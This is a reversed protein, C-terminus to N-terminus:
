RKQEKSIINQVREGICRLTLCDGEANYRTGDRIKFFGEQNLKMIWMDCYKKQEEYKGNHPFSEIFGDLSKNNIFIWDEAKISPDIELLRFLNGEYDRQLYANVVEPLWTTPKSRGTLKIYSVGMNEYLHVDEPRIIGGALLFERPNTLKRTNCNTHFRADQSGQEALHKYHARRNPCHLLCSETAMIEVDIDHRNSVKVLEELTQWDKGVDHHPVIRNPRIHLFRELDNVNKIGAITSVHIEIKSDIKRVEEMLGLSSITLAKPNLERLIWELYSQLELKSEADNKIEFPANLLYTLSLGVSKLYDNFAIADARTVDVVSKSARGHGVLGGKALAGYVEGLVIGKEKPFSLLQKILDTNWHCPVTLQTINSM